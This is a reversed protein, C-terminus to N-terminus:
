DGAKAPEEGGSQLPGIEVRGVPLEKWDRDQFQRYQDPEWYEANYYTTGDINRMGHPTYLVITSPSSQSGLKGTIGNKRERRLRSDIRPQAVADGYEAYLKEGIELARAREDETMAEWFKERQVLMIRYHREAALDMWAYATARDVEVGEGNWYMQAIMGQSPKDAYRAGRRFARMADEHDGANYYVIGDRRGRLDPHASLFGDASMILSEDQRQALASSAGAAFCCALLLALMRRLTM